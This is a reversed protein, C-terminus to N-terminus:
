QQPNRDAHARGEHSRKVNVKLNRDIRLAPEGDKEVKREGQPAVRDAGLIHAPTQDALRASSSAQDAHAASAFAFAASILALNMMKKNM